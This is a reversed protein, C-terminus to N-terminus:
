KDGGALGLFDDNWIDRTKTDRSPKEEASRENAKGTRRPPTQENPKAKPKPKAKKAAVTPDEQSQAPGTTLPRMHARMADSGKKTRTMHQSSCSDCYSWLMDRKNPRIIAHEWGCDSCTTEGLAPQKFEIAPM